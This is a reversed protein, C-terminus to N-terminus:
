PRCIITKDIVIKESPHRRDPVVVLNFFADCNVCKGGVKKCCVIFIARGNDTTGSALYVCKDNALYLDSATTISKDEVVFEWCQDGAPPVIKGPGSQPPVPQPAPPIPSTAPVPVPITLCHTTPGCPPTECQVTICIEGTPHNKLSKITAKGEAGLGAVAFDGSSQGPTVTQGDISVSFTCNQNLAPVMEVTFQDDVHLPNKSSPSLRIDFVCPAM